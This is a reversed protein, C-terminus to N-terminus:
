RYLKGDYYREQFFIEKRIEEEPIDTDGINVIWKDENDNYRHCVATVKGKFKELPKDTGIIYVDQEAGDGAMVGDIYGYNIPYIMDTHKPHRSGM